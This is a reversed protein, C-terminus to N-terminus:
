EATATIRPAGAVVLEKETRARAHEKEGPNRVPRANGNGNSHAHGNGNSKAPSPMDGRILIALDPM